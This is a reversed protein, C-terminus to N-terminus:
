LTTGVSRKKAHKSDRLYRVLNALGASIQKTRACFTAHQDETLHQQDLAVLLQARVEGCSGKAIVLFRAFDPRSRREFGEAINSM